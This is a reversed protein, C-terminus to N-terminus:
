TADSSESEPYNAKMYAPIAYSAFMAVFPVFYFWFSVLMIRFLKYILYLIKNGWTRESYGVKVHTPLICSDEGHEEEELLEEEAESHISELHSNFSNGSKDSAVDDVAEAVTEGLKKAGAGAGAPLLPTTINEVASGFGSISNRSFIGSGSTLAEMENRQSTRQKQLRM